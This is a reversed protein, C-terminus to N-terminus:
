LFYNGGSAVLGDVAIAIFTDLDEVFAVILGVDEVLREVLCAHLLRSEKDGLHELNRHDLVLPRDNRLVDLTLGKLGHHVLIRLLKVLIKVPKNRDLQVHM